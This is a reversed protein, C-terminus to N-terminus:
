SIVPSGTSVTSCFPADAQVRNREEDKEGHDGKHEDVNEASYQSEKRSRRSAYPQRHRSANRNGVDKHVQQGFQGLMLFKDTLTSTICPQEACNLAMSVQDRDQAKTEEVANLAERTGFSLPPEADRHAQVEDDVILTEPLVM